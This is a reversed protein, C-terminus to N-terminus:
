VIVVHRTESGRRTVESFMVSWDLCRECVSEGQLRTQLSLTPYRKRITCVHDIRRRTGHAYRAYVIRIQVSMGCIVDLPIRAVDRRDREDVSRVDNGLPDQRSEIENETTMRVPALDPHGAHAREYRIAVKRRLKRAAQVPDSM